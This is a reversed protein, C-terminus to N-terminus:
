SPLWAKVQTLQDSSGLAAKPLVFAQSNDIFLYLNRDDEALYRVSSWPYRVEGYTGRAVLGSPDLDITQESLFWSEPPLMVNNYIRQKFFAGVIMLAVGVFFATAVVALDYFMGPHKRFLAAYAAFAIGLPVWVVLNSFFLNSNASSLQTLRRNIVKRLAIFDARSLTFSYHM